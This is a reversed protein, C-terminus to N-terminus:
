MKDPIPLGLIGAIGSMIKRYHEVIGLRLLQLNRNTEKLISYKHYYSNFSQAMDYTWGAILSLDLSDFAQKSIDEFRSLNFLFEWTSGSEEPDSIDIFNWNNFISTLDAENIIGAEIAKRIISRSRVISYQIYPGADGEFSLAEDFDFAIVKNKNFKILFYRLAGITIEEAIRGIEEEPIDPLNQKIREKAKKNLIEILDDAKVGLGRRGSMEIYKKAKEEPDLEMGLEEACAPSLAVMGYAFHRLDIGANVSQVAERVVKQPYSQRVDIVNVAIDASNFKAPPKQNENKHSSTWVKGGDEYEHFVHYEFDKELLGCKWFHYAIDKATYTITGNSRVLIKDPDDMESFDASDKLNMVWCGKKEGDEAFFLKQRKKLIEFTELWFDLALVDREWVIIDYKIGIKVMLNLLAKTIVSSVYEGTEAFAGHGEEMEKLALTQKSKREPDEEYWKSVDSYVDWCFRDLRDGVAKIQDLSMGRMETLGIVVDAVQVGTNDIYNQIITDYGLVKCLRAFTDGIVSNRIHGIHPTKNPNISTHEVIVRKGRASSDDFKFAGHIFSKLFVDKKIFFNIYGGGEVKASELYEPLEFASVIEEAIKRPPKKLRKALDFSVVCALDGMNRAPPIEISTKEISIGYQKEILKLLRSEIDLKYVLM